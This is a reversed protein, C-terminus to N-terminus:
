RTAMSMVIFSESLNQVLDHVFDHVNHAIHNHASGHTFLGAIEHVALNVVTNHASDYTFLVVIGHM